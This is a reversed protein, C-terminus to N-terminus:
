AHMTKKLENIARTIDSKTTSPGFSFRLTAESLEKLGLAKVGSSAPDNKVTTCASGTSVLIGRLDLKIALFEGIEGPFSVSVIHPSKYKLSGQVLAHPLNKKVELIFFDHLKQIHIHNKEKEKFNTELAVVFGILLPMNETGGRLGREQGGGFIIPTIDAPPRVVLLGVGKPGFVKGGDLTLLDINQGDINIKTYAAQSADTHFLPYKSNNKMRFERVVRGIKGINQVVGIEGNVMSISVLITNAKLAKQVDEAKILGDENPSLITVEAGRRKAEAVGELVSPHELSCTIIHPISVQKKLKEFVGLLALNNSETGGSTFIINSPQVLLLEAFRSRIDILAERVVVGEKYIASPNYFSKDWYKDMAKKAAPLLPTASAYDLFIRKGVKNKNFFSM